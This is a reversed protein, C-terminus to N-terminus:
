YEYETFFIMGLDWWTDDDHCMVDNSFRTYVLSFYTQLPPCLEDDIVTLEVAHPAGLFAISVIISKSSM